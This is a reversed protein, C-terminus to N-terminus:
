WSWRYAHSNAKSLHSGSHYRDLECECQVVGNMLFIIKGDCKEKAMHIKTQIFM